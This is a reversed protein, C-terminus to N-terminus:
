IAMCSGYYVSTSHERFAYAETSAFDAAEFTCCRRRWGAFM